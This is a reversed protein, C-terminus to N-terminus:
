ELKDSLLNEANRLQVRLKNVESKYRRLLIRALFFGACFVFLLTPLLFEWSDIVWGRYRILHEAALEHLLEWKIGSFNM